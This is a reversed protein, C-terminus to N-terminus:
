LRKVMYLWEGIGFFRASIRSRMVRQVSMGFSEYLHVAPANNAAVYLTLRRKDKRRAWDEAAHLLLRGIGRGQAEPLVGLSNVYAEDRQPLYYEFLFEGIAARVFGCVGFRALARPIQAVYHRVKGPPELLLAGLARGDAEALLAGDWGDLLIRRYVDSLLPLAEQVREGFTVRMKDAFASALIQAITEADNPTAVRCTPTILSSLSGM